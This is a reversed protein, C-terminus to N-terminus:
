FFNLKEMSVRKKYKLFLRIATPNLITKKNEGCTLYAENSSCAVAIVADWNLVVSYDNNSNKKINYFRKTLQLFLNSM